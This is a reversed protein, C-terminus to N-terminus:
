IIFGNKAIVNHYWRASDKPIREQTDYDVWFIGFRQSYGFAWEFNDLLSWVFYGALPVGSLMALQAAALHERLYNVRCHDRVRGSQDPGDSYSCGNETIYIKPVQYEFYLRCLVEYLGQPYVEWGMETWHQKDKPPLEVTSPLNREEPITQSRTVHRTYYNLGLFDTRTAITQLDGMQVCQMTEETLNGASVEDALIDAPYHRGYLPDLYWRTWLGDDRRNAHFDAASPSAPVRHNINLVIGVEAGLSFRRLISVAWGHSLLLHHSVRMATGLDKIGPSHTGILHGVYAIVAPENHTFWHKVRDGLRRSVVEAYEVFAEATSREVWGGEDQLAQPLDWHNLTVYPDIRVEMLHDVLEDYFDLGAQNIEGRGRPLVRPWSISFRYANLGIMQMLDVDKYWRYYHDCAVDGTDGNKIKGPTHAFSDWISEGKGDENWAGEIQYASTAAGWVFDDPFTIKGAM